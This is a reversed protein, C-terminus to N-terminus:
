VRRGGGVGVSDVSEREALLRANKKKMRGRGKKKGNSNTEGAEGARGVRM